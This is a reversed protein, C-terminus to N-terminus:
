SGVGRRDGRVFTMLARLPATIRWFESTLLEDRAQEAQQARHELQAVQLALKASRDSEAHLREAELRLTEQAAALAGRVEDLARGVESRRAEHVRALCDNGALLAIETASGPPLLLPAADLGAFMRLYEGGRAAPPAATTTTGADDWRLQISTVHGTDEVGVVLAARVVFDWDACFALQEDFRLHMETVLSRPVAISSIPTADKVLNSIVDFREGFEGLPKTLTVASAGMAGEDPTRRRVHRAFCVSCVLKGPARGAGEAFREAWDATVLDDDELFAVYRGRALALGANLAESQNKGGSVQEVRVRSTLGKEFSNVVAGSSELAGPDEGHVLVIVELDEFSQAALCTLAETLLSPHTGDTRILVSLFPPDVAAAEAPGGQPAPQPTRRDPMPARPGLRYARV